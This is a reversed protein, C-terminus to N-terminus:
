AGPPVSPGTSIEVPRRPDRGVNPCDDRMMCVRCGLSRRMLQRMFMLSILVAALLLDSFAIPRGRIQAVVLVLFPYVWLIYIGLMARKMGSHFARENGRSYFRVVFRGKLSICYRGYYYCNVCANRPYHFYNVFVYLLAFGGAFWPSISLLLASGAMLYVVAALATLLSISRPYEKYCEM